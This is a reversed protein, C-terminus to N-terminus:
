KRIDYLCNICRLQNYSQVRYCELSCVITNKVNALLQIQIYQKQDNNWKKVFISFVNVEQNYMYTDYIIDKFTDM